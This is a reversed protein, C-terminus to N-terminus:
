PTASASPSATRAPLTPTPPPATPPLSVHTPSLNVGVHSRNLPSSPVFVLVAVAFGILLVATLLSGWRWRRRTSQAPM